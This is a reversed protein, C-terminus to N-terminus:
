EITNLHIGKKQLQIIQMINHMNGFSQMHDVLRQAYKSTHNNYQFSHKHKNFRTIFDRGTQGIYAKGCNPCTLKYIGSQTFKHQNHVNYTLYNQLTNNTRYAIKINTHKFIKTIYTTERGIYTTWKQKTQPNQSRSHNLTNPTHPLLPYSNNHM